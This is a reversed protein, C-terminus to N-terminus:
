EKSDFRSTKVVGEVNRLKEMLQELHRTDNVYLMIEGEFIGNDTHISMSSMNVKLEESIIKSVDNILGVRDTGRIKLGTLFAVEHQSTWKAKVVRNGHHSLLEPANPCNTRHIKIGENVTVFGFVEDGPIPTCCKALKYDVVDMDEGILLIDEYRGKIKTIEQEITKADSVTLTPRSKIPSTPRNEVFKKIDATTIFGSGVRYYLEFHTQAKFYDRMQELLPQTADEKLQRLKRLIIEKGEEAAKKKDEKLVDKIRAKARSSVVFRLWDEHPKQKASTLIEIQDGNKLVYNIPVLKNNVKAGICKSGVQSHIEFAFDLATAGYPLTKLEGKPTFVFVEESFLNGRFDDVFDLASHNNQELLDRVRALWKELNSEATSNSDKYKWHAAYGKEAIEDMRKSRIQVEVWQGNKAMVTTHLSEYGNAKPTSIWDRLRDPNPTYFDTVISYVQWCLAKEHEYPTDLVIRIAFLDFVEEFPINQKRMKNWISYISKPRGKIEYSIELKDLEDNIPVMFQKIFKNRAAKTADIKRVISDYINKDTFRLYLDELETKIANLGLRHALPAYLYITENAIKLQKNRPMSDLTRMNHLRDALKILIVRVDESLTFLMKRFNEAQQSSGYEFVGRIKTLGDIIKTIKKGFNREIDVLEMDTDEVVDHMLAAIISTTGLGIEEVCIEAVALPHFIFPEGSKRRMDKHAQLSITFAKKILKADGDKLIPKAKRLLRRYRNIIERKEQETDIVM